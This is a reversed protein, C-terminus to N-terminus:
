SNMCVSSNAAEVKGLAVGLLIKSIGNHQGVRVVADVCVNLGIM